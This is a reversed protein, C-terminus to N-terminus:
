KWIEKIFINELGRAVGSENNSHTIYKALNKIEETGNGMAVPMGVFELMSADNNSDGFAVIENREIGYYEALTKIGHGKSTGKCMVEFNNVHSYVINVNPNSGTEKKARDLVDPDEHVGVVKMIEEQYNEITMEWDKVMEFKVHYRQDQVSENYKQYFLASNVMKETYITDMSYFHPTINNRKMVKLTELSNERGLRSHFIVKEDENIIYAGNSAIVDVKEGILSGFYKASVFLRGTCVVVRIGMDRIKAIMIKNKESIEKKDNLLTGDM